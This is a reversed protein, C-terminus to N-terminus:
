HYVVHQKSFDLMRSVSESKLLPAPDGGRDGGRDEEDSEEEKEEVGDDDGTGRSL